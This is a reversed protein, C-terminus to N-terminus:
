NIIASESASSHRSLRLLEYLAAEVNAIYDSVAQAELDVSAPKHVLQNRVEAGRQLDRVFSSSSGAVASWVKGYLKHLPPSPLELLLPVLQPAVRGIMEKIGIEAAITAAIWAIRDDSARRAERIYEFAVLPQEGAAFRLAIESATASGLSYQPHTRMVGTLRARRLPSWTLGDLSWEVHANKRESAEDTLHLEQAFLGFLHGVPQHIAELREILEDDLRDAEGRSPAGTELLEVLQASCDATARASFQAGNSSIDIETLGGDPRQTGFRFPGDAPVTNLPHDLDASFRFSVLMAPTPKRYLNM